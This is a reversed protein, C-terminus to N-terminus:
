RSAVVLLRACSTGFIILFRACIPLGGNGKPSGVNGSWGAWNRCHRSSGGSEADVIECFPCLTTEMTGLPDLRNSRVPIGVREYRGM